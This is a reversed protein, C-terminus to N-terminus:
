IEEEGLAEDRERMIEEYEEESIYIEPAIEYMLM